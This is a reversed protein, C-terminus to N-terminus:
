IKSIKVNCRADNGVDKNIPYSPFKKKLIGHLVMCEWSFSEEWMM